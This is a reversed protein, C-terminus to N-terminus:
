LCNVPLYTLIVHTRYCFVLSIPLKRTMRWGDHPVRTNNVCFLVEWGEMPVHSKHEWSRPFSMFLPGLSFTGFFVKHLSMSTSMLLVRPHRLTPFTMLCIRHRSRPSSSRFFNKRVFECLVPRLGHVLTPSQRTTNCEEQDPQESTIVCVTTKPTPKRM